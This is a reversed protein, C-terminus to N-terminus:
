QSVSSSGYANRRLTGSLALVALLSSIVLNWGAFSL